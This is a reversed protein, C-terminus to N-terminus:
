PLGPEEIEELAEVARERERRWLEEADPTRAARRLRDAAAVAQRAYHRATDTASVTLAKRAARRLHVIAQDWEGLMARAGNEFNVTVWANDHITSKQGGPETFVDQGGSAYVSLPRSGTFWNFVDFHHCSKEVLMGGSKSRDYIWMHEPSVRFPGRMERLWIMIPRGIEGQAILASAKQLHLHYRMQQGVMLVRRTDAAAAIM